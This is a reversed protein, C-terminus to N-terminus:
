NKKSNNPIALTINVGACGSISNLCTMAITEPKPGIYTEWSLMRYGSVMVDVVPASSLIRNMPTVLDDTEVGFILFRCVDFPGPGLRGRKDIVGNAHIAVITTPKSGIQKVWASQTDDQFVLDDLAEIDGKQFDTFGLHKAVPRSSELSEGNRVCLSLFDDTIVDVDSAELPMAGLLALSTIVSFLRM